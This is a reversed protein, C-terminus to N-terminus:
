PKPKQPGFRNLGLLTPTIIGTRIVAWLFLLAFAGFALSIIYQGRFQPELVFRAWLTVFIYVVVFVNSIFVKM